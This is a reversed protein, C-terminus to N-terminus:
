SLSYLCDFRYYDNIFGEYMMEKNKVKLLDEARILEPIKNSDYISSRILIESVFQSCFYYNQRKFPKNLLVGFLGLFNYRYKHKETLFIEVERKLSNYQEETVPVRYILCESRRFKRYVGGYLSEEVLGGSFPNNPNTRGFSYMKRFSSDFSVSAHVYKTESFAGIAQSLWTGTRTFILYIYKSDM